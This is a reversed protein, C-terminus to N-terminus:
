KLFKKVLLIQKTLDDFTLKTIEDKYKIDPSITSPNAIALRISNVARHLWDWYLANIADVIHDKQWPTLSSYTKNLYVIAVELLQIISTRIVSLKNQDVPIFFAGDLKDMIATIEAQIRQLEDTM